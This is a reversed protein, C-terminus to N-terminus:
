PHCRFSDLITQLQIMYEYKDRNPAYLWADLYYLRDQAPCRLVRTIFPGGAPWADPPSVWASQYEVGDLGGVEVSAFSAVATDLLQADNYYAQSFATRWDALEADTPLSDPIPSSWTVGIERILEAPSPNDNRFRFVSDRSSHQYVQPLSISFGVNAALSDSLATNEGSVFMRQVAYQRFQNHLVDHLEPALSAVAQAQGSEPLLLLSVLQGRAWVNQVQLIEPPSVAGGRDRAELVEQVWPMSADGLILVQRFRRLNGWGQGDSPDQYTIRFPREDRVTQITPELADRFLGEVEAWLTPDAAVILANADGHALPLECGSASLALLATLLAVNSSRRTM